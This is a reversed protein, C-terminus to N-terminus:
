YEFNYKEMQLQKISKAERLKHRKQHINTFECQMNCQVQCNQLHKLQQVKLWWKQSEAILRKREKKLLLFLPWLTLAVKMQHRLNCESYTRTPVNINFGKASPCFSPNPATIRKVAVALKDTDYSSGGNPASSHKAPLQAPKSLPCPSDPSVVSTTLFNNLLNSDWENLHRSRGSGPFWKGSLVDPDM